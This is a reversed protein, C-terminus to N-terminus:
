PPPTLIPPSFREAIFFFLIICKKEKKRFLFFFFFFFFFSFFIYFIYFIFVFRAGFCRWTKACKISLSRGRNFTWPAIKICFDPLCCFILFFFCFFLLSFFFFFFFCCVLFCFLFCYVFTTFNVLNTYIYINRLVICKKEFSHPCTKLVSIRADRCRDRFGRDGSGGLWQWVAVALLLCVLYAFVCGGPPNKTPFSRGFARCFSSRRKKMTSCGPKYKNM